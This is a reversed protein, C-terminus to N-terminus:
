GNIARENEIYSVHITLSSYVDNVYQGWIGLRELPM